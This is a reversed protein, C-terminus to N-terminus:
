EIVVLEDMEVSFETGPRFYGEQVLADFMAHQKSDLIGDIARYWSEKLRLLQRGYERPLFVGSRRYAGQCDQLERLRTRLAAVVLPDQQETLMLNTRLVDLMARSEGSPAPIAPNADQPVPAEPAIRPEEARTPRSDPMVDLVGAGDLARCERAAPAPAVRGAAAERRALGCIGLILLLAAGPMGFKM